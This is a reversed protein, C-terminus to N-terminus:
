SNETNMKSYSSRQPRNRGIITPIEILLQVQSIEKLLVNTFYNYRSEFLM